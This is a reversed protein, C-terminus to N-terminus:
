VTHALVTRYIVDLAGLIMKLYKLLTIFCNLVFHIDRRTACWGTKWASLTRFCVINQMFHQSLILVFSIIQNVLPTYFNESDRGIVTICILFANSCDLLLADSENYWLMGNRWASLTGFVCYKAHFTLSLILLCSVTHVMLPKYISDSAGWVIRICRLFIMLCELLLPHREKYCM